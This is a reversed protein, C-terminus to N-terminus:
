LQQRFPRTVGIQEFGLRELIPASMPGAGVLLRPIGREVSDDWRAHVLSVYVSRGRAEPLVAGGLLLTAAPTFVARGFGVAEGDLYALYLRSSEHPALVEWEARWDPADGAPPPWIAAAIQRTVAYDEASEVRRVEATAAGAPATTLTLTKSLPMEPDPELGAALLREALEAPTSRAGVWWNVYALGRERGLAAVDEVAQEVDGLRIREVTGWGRRVLVAYGDRRILERGLEDPMSLSPEEALEILDVPASPEM